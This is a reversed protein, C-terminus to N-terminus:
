RNLWKRKIEEKNKVLGVISIIIVVIVFLALLPNNPFYKNMIKDVFNQPLASKVKSVFDYSCVGNNLTYGENCTKCLIDGEEDEVLIGNCHYCSNDFWIFEQELCEAETSFGTQAMFAVAGAEAGATFGGATGGVDGAPPPPPVTSTGVTFTYSQTLINEASDYVYFKWGVVKGATLNGSGIIYSYTSNGDISISHNNWVGNSANDSFNGSFLNIDGLWVSINVDTNDLINTSGTLTKNSANLYSPTTSDFGITKNIQYKNVGGISEFILTTEQTKITTEFKGKSTNKVTYEVSYNTRLRYDIWNDKSIFHSPYKSENRYILDNDKADTKFTYTHIADTVTTNSFNWVTIYKSEDKSKYAYFDLVAIDSSKLKQVIRNNKETTDFQLKLNDEDKGVNYNGIKKATHDDSASCVTLFYREGWSLNYILKITQTAAVISTYEESFLIGDTEATGNYTTCNFGYLNVDSAEVTKNFDKNYPTSNSPMNNILPNVTDIKFSLITANNGWDIGDYASISINYKGDSANLTTNINSALTQNLTGNIYIKIQTITDGDVDFITYNIDLPQLNYLTNEQPQIITVVPLNNSDIQYTRISLSPTAVRVITNIGVMEICSKHVESNITTSNWSPNNSDCTSTNIPYLKEYHTGDWYSLNIFRTITTSETWVEIDFPNNSSLTVNTKGGSALETQTIQTIFTDVSAKKTENIILKVEWNQNSPYVTWVPDGATDSYWSHKGTADVNEWGMFIGDAVQGGNTTSAEIKYSGTTSEHTENLRVCYWNWVGATIDEAKITYQNDDTNSVNNVRFEFDREEDGVGDSNDYLKFCTQVDIERGDEIWGYNNSSNYYVIGESYRRYYTENDDTSFSQALDTGADYIYETHAYNFDPQSIYFDDYGLVLSAFYTNQVTTLNKMEFTDSTRNDFAQCLVDVNHSQYWISKNLELDWNEYTYSDPASASAGNWRRVCSEKMCFGDPASYTCFDEYTTYTNLGLKRGKTIKVYDSLTKFQNSFNTSSVGTDLGDLFIQVKSSSPNLNICSDAEAQKGSQWAGTNAFDAVSIYCYFDTETANNMRPVLMDENEDDFVVIRYNSWNVIYSANFWGYYTIFSNIKYHPDFLEIKIEDADNDLAFNGDNTNDTYNFTLEGSSSAKFLTWTGQIHDYDDVYILTASYASVNIDATGNTNSHIYIKNTYDWLDKGLIGTVNSFNLYFLSETNQINFAIFDGNSIEAVTFNGVTTTPVPTGRMVDIINNRFLKVSDKLTGNINYIRNLSTTNRMYGNEDSIWEYHTKSNIYKLTTNQIYSEDLDDTLYNKSYIIFKNKTVATLNQSANNLVGFKDGDSFEASNNVELSIYEITDEYPDTNFISFNSSLNNYFNNKETDITYDFDMFINIGVRVNKANSHNTSNLLQQWDQQIRSANITFELITYDYSILNDIDSEILIRDETYGYWGDITTLNQTQVTITVTDTSISSNDTASITITWTGAKNLKFDTTYSYINSNVLTMSLNNVVINSDPDTVTVNCSSFDSDADATCTANIWDIIENYTRTGSTFGGTTKWNISTPAPVATNAVTFKTSEQTTAGSTDNYFVTFNIVEGRTLTITIAQSFNFRTGQTSGDFTTNVMAGSQNHAVMGFATDGDADTINGSINIVDNIKITTLNEGIAITGLTDAVTIITDNMAFNNATDNVRITFNVVAGRTATITIKNSCQDSTGSVSVNTYVNSGTQNNIIQCFSLGTEDTVNASINLIDNVKINTLSINLSTNVIPLTTDAEVISWNLWSVADIDFSNSPNALGINMVSNSEQSWTFQLTGDSYYKFVGNTRNIVHITGINRPEDGIDDAGFYIDTGLTLHSRLYWSENIDECGGFDSATGFASQNIAPYICVAAYSGVPTFKFEFNDTLNDTTYITRPTTTSAIDAGDFTYSGTDGEWEGSASDKAYAINILVLIMVFILFLLKQKM